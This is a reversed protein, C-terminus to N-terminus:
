ELVDQVGGGRAANATEAGFAALRAEAGSLAIGNLMPSYRADVRGHIDM